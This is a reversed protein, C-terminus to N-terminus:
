KQIGWGRLNYTKFKYVNLNVRQAIFTELNQCISVPGYLIIKNGQCFGKQKVQDLKEGSASHRAVVSRKM